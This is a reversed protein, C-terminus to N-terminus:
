LAGPHIDSSPGPYLRCRPDDAKGMCAIQGRYNHGMYMTIRARSKGHPRNSVSPLGSQGETILNALRNISYLALVFPPTDHIRTARVRALCFKQLRAQQHHM